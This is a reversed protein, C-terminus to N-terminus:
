AGQWDRPPRRYIPSAEFSEGEFAERGPDWKVTKGTRVALHGLHLATALRHGAEAHYAPKSRSKMCDLFDRHEIPPRPWYDATDPFEAVRLIEPDSASWAGNWGKCRVWGNSGEFKIDVEGAGVKMVVGNAYRYDLDFRIPVDSHFKEPDPLPGSGFVEVPGLHEMRAGIQATDILHSGWDTIVGGSYDFLTRWHQPDPRTPTYEHFPAPGLWLNWDLGAPVPAPEELPFPSKAPLTVHITKLDGILGARVWGALRYYKVLYRDEIGWQFVAKRKMVETVLESGETITLTPKECFVDKGARLAALSLPVHWHDPTSIVIADLDDRAILERFDQTVTCDTNGHHQDVERKAREAASRRVDCVALTVQDPQNLFTRLNRGIGQSGMGIHGLTIKNSPADKGLLRSPIILPASAAALQALVKRRSPKPPSSDTPKM